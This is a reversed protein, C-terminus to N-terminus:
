LMEKEAMWGPKLLFRLVKMGTWRGVIFHGYEHVTVLIGLTVALALLSYLVSM